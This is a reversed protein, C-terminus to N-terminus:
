PHAIALVSDARTMVCRVAREVNEADLASFSEDLVLLEPRQLLARALFVRVREGQSLQWGTEGVMQHLGAPLRDILEGLGLERCVREADELDRREPPWTKGMLLNFALSGGVIYNDHAQPAMAVRRRWADAGLVSRDLGDVLLLGSEPTQLGAVISALTTKGSGSPGELLLRARHPIVLNCGRLVAEGQARYRFRLDRATLVPLVEGERPRSPLTAAVSSGAPERRAAARALPAVAQAAILAGTLNSLGATLRQLSRYALLVGGLSVAATTTSGRTALTPVLTIVAIAMWGRPVLTTLWHGARDMRESHELYRDLLEDESEHRRASSEQVLRTRHGVMSEVLQETISFRAATWRRRAGLYRWAMLLTLGTWAMLLPAAMVASGVWLIASAVGLELVALAAVVGGTLALADIAAAEMVLGFLQGAGKSRIEQRDVSLAGRLLRRRLWAGITVAAQGQSWTALLRLPILSALLLM